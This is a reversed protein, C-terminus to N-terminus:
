RFRTPSSGSFRAGSGGPGGGGGRQILGDRQRRGVTRGNGLGLGRQGRRTGGIATGTGFAQGGNAGKGLGADDTVLKKGIVAGIGCGDAHPGIPLDVVAAAGIAPHRFGIGFGAHGLGPQAGGPLLHVFLDDRQKLAQAGRLQDGNRGLSLGYGAFQRAGADGM